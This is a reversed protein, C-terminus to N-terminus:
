CPQHRSPYLLLRTSALPGTAPDHPVRLAVVLTVGSARGEAVTWAAVRLFRKGRGRGGDGETVWKLTRM